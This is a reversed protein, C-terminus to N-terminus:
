SPLRDDPPRVHPLPHRFEVAALYTVDKVTGHYAYRTTGTLGNQFFSDENDDYIKHADELSVRRQGLIATVRGVYRLYAHCWFYCVDGVKVSM